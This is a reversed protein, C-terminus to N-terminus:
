DGMGVPEGYGWKGEATEVHMVVVPEVTQPPAGEGAEVVEPAEWAPLGRPTLDVGDQEAMWAVHRVRLHLEAQGSTCESAHYLQAHGCYEDRLGRESEALYVRLFWHAHM